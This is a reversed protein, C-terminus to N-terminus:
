VNSCEREKEREIEQGKREREGREEKERKGERGAIKREGRERDRERL